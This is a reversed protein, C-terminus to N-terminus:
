ALSNFRLLHMILRVDQFLTGLQYFFVFACCYFLAPSRQEYDTLPAIWRLPILQRCLTVCIIGVSAGALIDLPWHFGLYIRPILAFLALIWAVIGLKRFHLTIVFALAAFVAAHDSPFSSWHNLANPDAGFPSRFPLSPDHLPRPHFKFVLQMARSAVGAFLAGALELLLYQREILYKPSLRRFWCYAVMGVLPIGTLIYAEAVINAANDLATSRGAFQNFFLVATRDFEALLHIM